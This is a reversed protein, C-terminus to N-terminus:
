DRSRMRAMMKRIKANRMERTGDEPQNIQKPDPAVESMAPDPESEQSTLAQVSPQEDRDMPTNSDNPEAIEHQKITDIDTADEPIGSLKVADDSMAKKKARIRQSMESATMM